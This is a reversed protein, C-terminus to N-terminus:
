MITAQVVAKLREILSFRDQTFEADVWWDEVAALVRGVEPGPPVGAALVDKGKLPFVPREWTKAVELLARWRVTNSKKADASWTLMLRDLFARRGMRYLALRTERMSLYCVLEQNERAIALLRDRLANSLKWRQTLARAAMETNETLAALRLQEDCTFLHDREIEILHALRNAHRAEPLIDNLLKNEIMLDVIPAARDAKLLKLFEAQVREGSLTKLGQAARACAELGAEDPAGTAYRANFRFFRLIRLYDEAIRADADGIFRVRGAKADAIGGVPDFLTGDPDAYIANMTFDRRAADQDWDNTFAVKARRGDTEIDARLTTIEFPAGHAIATITGHDIGTPIAKLGAAELLAIVAGPEHITALDIDEVAEGLLANRVCGGVFRVPAAEGPPSLARIIQGTAAGHLWDQNQLRETKGM